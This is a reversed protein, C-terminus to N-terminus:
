DPLPLDQLRNSYLRQPLRPLEVPPSLPPCPTLKISFSVVFGCVLVCVSVSVQLYLGLRDACYQSAEAGGHGDFIGYYSIPEGKATTGLKEVAYRDEQYQRAGMRCWHSTKLHSSNPYLQRDKMSTLPEARSGDSITSRNSYLQTTSIKGLWGGKVLRSGRRGRRPGRLYGYLLTLFCIVVPLYLAVAPSVEHVELWLKKVKEIKEPFTEM